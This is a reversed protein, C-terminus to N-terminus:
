LMFVKKKAMEQQEENLKRDEEMVQKLSKGHCYEQVSCVKPLSIFKDCVKEKKIHMCSREKNHIFRDDKIVMMETKPIVDVGLMEAVDYAAANNQSSMYPDNSGFSMKQEIFTEGPAFSQFAELPNNVTFQQQDRAQIVYRIRDFEDSLFYKASISFSDSALKLKGVKLCRKIDSIMQSEKSKLKKKWHEQKQRVEKRRSRVELNDSDFQRALLQVEDYVRKVKDLTEKKTEEDIGAEEFSVYHLSQLLDIFSSHKIPDYSEIAELDM